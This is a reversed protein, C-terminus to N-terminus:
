IGKSDEGGFYSPGAFKAVGLFTMAPMSNQMPQRSNQM